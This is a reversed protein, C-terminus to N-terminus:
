KELHIQNGLVVGCAVSVSAGDHAPLDVEALGHKIPVDVSSLTDRATETFTVVTGDPVANGSCDRVIGTSLHVLKGSERVSLNLGCPDGSVQQVIRTSSAEGVRVVFKDLGQQLTSDMRTWAAGDSSETTRYENTGSPNLLVFSVPFPATILNRYADFLYVAGTIGDHLGIPLRSPKALFSLEAPATGPVVQFSESWNLSGNVVIARNVGAKYLTGAPFHLPEGLQFERKLVQGFGVIYLTANGTGFSQISFAEGARVAKPLDLVGGQALAPHLATSAMAGCLIAFKLKM